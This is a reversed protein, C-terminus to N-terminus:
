LLSISLLLALLSIQSFYVEMPIRSKSCEMVLTSHRIRQVDLSLTLPQLLIAFTAARPLSTTNSVLTLSGAAEFGSVTFSAGAISCYIDGSLNDVITDPLAEPRSGDSARFGISLTIHM